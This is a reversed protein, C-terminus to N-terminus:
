SRVVEHQLEFVIVFIVVFDDINDDEMNSDGRLANLFHM